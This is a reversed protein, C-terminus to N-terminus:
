PLTLSFSSNCLYYIITSMFDSSLIKLLFLDVNDFTVTSFHESLPLIVMKRHRNLFGLTILQFIIRILLQETLYGIEFYVHM